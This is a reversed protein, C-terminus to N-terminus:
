EYNKEKKLQKEKENLEEITAELVKIRSEKDDIKELTLLITMVGRMVQINNFSIMETMMEDVTELMVHIEEKTLM